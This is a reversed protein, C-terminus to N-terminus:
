GPGGSPVGTETRAHEQVWAKTRAFTWVDRLVTSSLFWRGPPALHFLTSVVTIVLSLSGTVHGGGNPRSFQLVVFLFDFFGELGCAVCSFVDLVFLPSFWSVNIWTSPDKDTSLTEFSSLALGSGMQSPWQPSQTIAAILESKDVDGDGDIDANLQMADAISCLEAENM